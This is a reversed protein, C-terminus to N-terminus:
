PGESQSQGSNEPLKSKERGWQSGRLLIHRTKIVDSGCKPSRLFGPEQSPGRERARYTSNPLFKASLRGSRPLCLSPKPKLKQGHRHHLHEWWPWNGTAMAAQLIGSCTMMLESAALQLVRGPGPPTYSMNATSAPFEPLGHSAHAHSLVPLEWPADLHM